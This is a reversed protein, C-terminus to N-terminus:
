GGAQSAQQVLADVRRSVNALRVRANAHAERMQNRETVNVQDISQTKRRLRFGIVPKVAVTAASAQTAADTAKNGTAAPAPGPPTAAHTSVEGDADPRRPRLRRQRM